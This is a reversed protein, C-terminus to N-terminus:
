VNCESIFIPFLSCNSVYNFKKPNKIKSFRNFGSVLGVMRSNFAELKFGNITVPSLGKVAILM